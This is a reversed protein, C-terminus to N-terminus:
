PRPLVFRGQADELVVGGPFISAVTLGPAVRDGEGYRSLNILVFRQGPEAAHVHANLSLRPLKKRRGPPLDAIRPVLAYRELRQESPAGTEGDASERIAPPTSADDPTKTGPPAEGDPTTRRNGVPEASKGEPARSGTASEETEDPGSDAGSVAPKESPRSAPDGGTPGSARAPLSVETIERLGGRSGDSEAPPRHDMWWAAAAGGAVVLVAAALGWGSKRPQATDNDPIRGLPLSAERPRSAESRKLAKLITSM